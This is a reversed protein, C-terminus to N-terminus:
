RVIPLGSRDRKQAAANDDMVEITLGGHRARWNGRSPATLSDDIIEIRSPSPAPKPSPAITTLSNQLHSRERGGLFNGIIAVLPPFQTLRSLPGKWKRLIDVSLVDLAEDSSVGFHDRLHKIREVAKRWTPTLITRTIHAPMAALLLMAYKSNPENTLSYSDFYKKAMDLPLDPRAEKTGRDIIAPIKYTNNMANSRSIRMSNWSRQRQDEPLAAIKDDRLTLIVNAKPYDRKALANIAIDDLFFPPIIDGAIRIIANIRSHYDHQETVKALLWEIPTDNSHLHDPTIHSFHEDSGHICIASSHHRVLAPDACIADLIQTKRVAQDHASGQKNISITIIDLRYLDRSTFRPLLEIVKETPLYPLAKQLYSTDIPDTAIEKAIADRRTTNREKTLRNLHKEIEDSRDQGDEDAMALGKVFEPPLHNFARTLIKDSEENVYGIRSKRGIVAATFAPYDDQHYRGGEKLAYHIDDESDAHQFFHQVQDTPVFPLFSRRDNNDTLLEHNQSLHRIIAAITDKKGLRHAEYLADLYHGPHHDSDHLLGTLQNGNAYPYLLHDSGTFAIADYFVDRREQTYGEMQPDMIARIISRDLRIKNLLDSLIPLPAHHILLHATLPQFVNPKNNFDEAALRSAGYALRELMDPQTANAIATDIFSAPILHANQHHFAISAQQVTIEPHTLLAGLADGLSSHNNVTSYFEAEFTSSKAM